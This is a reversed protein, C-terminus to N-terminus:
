MWVILKFKAPGWLSQIGSAQSLEFEIMAPDFLLDVKGNRDLDLQVLLRYIADNMADDDAYDISANTFYCSESGNYSSPLPSTFSTDDEFQITWNCGINDQFVDGYGAMTHMRLTYIAKDDPSCGTPSSSSNGTRVYIENNVDSEVYEVPINVIFPDGLVQYGSGWAGLNYVTDPSGSSALTVYDTWQPGSYSTVKADSVVAGSPVAIDGTCSVTDAFRCTSRKLSVEGYSSRNEPEFTFEIYSIPDLVSEEFAGGFVISQSRTSSDFIQTSFNLYCSAAATANGGPCYDGEGCTAVGMLTTEATLCGVTAPGFGISRIEAGLDNHARKASCITDYIAPYCANNYCDSPNGGCSDTGTKSSCNGGCSDCTYLGHGQVELDDIMVHERESTNDTRGMFQLTLNEVTSPILAWANRWAAQNGNGINPNTINFVTRWRTGNWYLFALRDTSETSEYSYWVSVNVDTYNSIDIKTRNLVLYGTFNGWIGLYSDGTHAGISGNDSMGFYYGTSATTRVPDVMWSSAESADEFSSTFIPGRGYSCGGCNKGAIGDTMVIIYADKGPDREAQLIEYALNIACCICTGGSPSNSYSNIQAILSANNQADTLHYPNRGDAEALDDFSILAMRNGSRNMVTNIFQKDLCKALSIRRTDADYLNPSNCDRTTGSTSDTYGIRWAMSGSVDTILVVDANGSAIVQSINKSGFRLPVTNMSLSTLDQPFGGSSYIFGMTLFNSDSINVEQWDPDGGSSNFVTIDGIDLFTSYNSKYRIRADMSQLRGPVYFSDYLNIIGDIGPFYYRSMKVAEDTDMTNTNYLVHIYGGGVYQESIDSGTFRIEFENDEGPSILPSCGAVCGSGTGSPVPCGTQSRDRLTASMDSSSVPSFSGALQDNIYLDYDSPTNVELCCSLIDADAPIDRVYVTINGEGVFGGFYTYSSTEKEKINNLAARAVNGRTPLGKGYGVLLRTSHTLSTSSDLPIRSINEAVVDDDITIRYGVNPPLIRELYSSLTLNANAFHGSSRNGDAAAWEEGVYDLVGKKNLVDLADESVYHLRVMSSESVISSTKVIGLFSAMIVLVFTLAVVADLIIAYGRKM